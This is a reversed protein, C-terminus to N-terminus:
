YKTAADYIMRIKKAAELANPEAWKLGNGGAYQGDLISIMEFSIGEYGPMHSFDTVGGYATCVTPINLTLAEGVTLGLGEARHLSVYCDLMKLLSWTQLTSLKVDLIHIRTDNQVAQMLEQWHNQETALFTNHTKLILCPQRHMHKAENYPFAAQFARVLALPNKREIFSAVDFFYGILYRNEDAAM